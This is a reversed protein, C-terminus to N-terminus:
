GLKKVSVCTLPFFTQISTSYQWWLHGQKAREGEKRVATRNKHQNRQIMVQHLHVIILHMQAQHGRPISQLLPADKNADKRESRNQMEQERKVPLCRQFIVSFHPRHAARLIDRLFQPLSCCVSYCPGLAKMTVFLVCIIYM